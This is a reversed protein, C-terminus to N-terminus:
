ASGVAGHESNESGDKKKISDLFRTTLVTKECHFLCERCVARLSLTKRGTLNSSVVKLKHFKRAASHAM